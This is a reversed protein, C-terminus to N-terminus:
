PDDSTALKLDCINRVVLGYWWSAEVWLTPAATPGTALRKSGQIVATTSRRCCVSLSERIWHSFTPRDEAAGDVPLANVCSPKQEIQRKM